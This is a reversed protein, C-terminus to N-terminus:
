GVLVKKLVFTSSVLRFSCKNINVMENTGFHDRKSDAMGKSFTKCVTSHVTLLPRHCGDTSKFNPIDFTASEALESKLKHVFNLPSFM